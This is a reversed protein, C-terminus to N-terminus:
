RVVVSLTLTGPRPTTRADTWARIDPSHQPNIRMSTPLYTLVIARPEPKSKTLSETVRDLTSDSVSRTASPLHTALDVGLLDKFTKRDHTTAPLIHIMSIATTTTSDAPALRALMQTAQMPTLNEIVFLWAGPLKRKYREFTIPEFTIAVNAAKAAAVFSDVGRISDKAFLDVRMIPSTSLEKQIRDRADQRVLDGTSLMVPLKVLVRELVPTAVLPSAYLPPLPAPLAPKPVPAVEVSAAVTDPEVDDTPDQFEPIRSLVLKSDAEVATDVKPLSEAHELIVAQSRLAKSGISYGLGLALLASAAVTATVWLPRQAPKRITSSPIATFPESAAIRAMVAPLVTPPAAYRSLNKLSRQDRQLARLLRRASPSRDLLERLRLSEADGLPGDLSNAILERDTPTLM